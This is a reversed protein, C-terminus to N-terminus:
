SSRRMGLLAAADELRGSKRLQSRQQHLAEQSRAQTTTKAGPKMTPSQTAVRKTVAANSKKLANYAALDHLVKVMRHDVIRGLETQSFGYEAGVTAIQESASRFTAEDRWEPYVTLLKEREEAVVARNREEVIAQYAERAQQAKRQRTNWAAQEMQFAKPELTAALKTWDPEQETPVAWTQLQEELQQERRDLDAKRADTTRITEAAAQTKRTYDQMRLYGDRIEKATLKRKGDPLEVEISPEEEPQGEEETEEGEAEAEVEEPEGDEVTEPEAEPEEPKDSRASAMREVAQELSTAETLNEDSM